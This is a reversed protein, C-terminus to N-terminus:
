LGLSIDTLIDYSIEEVEKVYKKSMKDGKLIIYHDSHVEAHRHM